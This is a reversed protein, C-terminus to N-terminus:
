ERRVRFVRFGPDEHMLELCRTQFADFQNWGLTELRAGRRRFFRIAGDNVLVHTVGLGDLCGPQSPASRLYAWNRLVVDQVVPVDFYFGRGDFLLLLRDTASLHTGVWDVARAHAATEWFRELFAKRSTTGTLHSVSPTRAVYGALAGAGPLCLVVALAPVIRWGAKGLGGAARTLVAASLITLPLLVAALYRLNVYGDGLLLLLGFYAM